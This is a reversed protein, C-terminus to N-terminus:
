PRAQLIALVKQSALKGAELDITQNTGIQHLMEAMLADGAGIESVIDDVLEVNHVQIDDGHHYEIHSTSSIVVHSAQLKIHHKTLYEYMGQNTQIYFIPLTLIKRAIDLNEIRGIYGIDLCIWFHYQTALLAYQYSYETLEDIVLMGHQLRQLSSELMKLVKQFDEKNILPHIGPCTITHKANEVYIHTTRTKFYPLYLVKKVVEINCAEKGEKDDGCYGVIEVHFVDKLHHAINFATGGGDIRKLKNDQYFYDTILEGVCVLNEM